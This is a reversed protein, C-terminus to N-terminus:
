VVNLTSSEIRLKQLNIIFILRKLSLNENMQTLLVLETLHFKLATIKSSFFDTIKNM